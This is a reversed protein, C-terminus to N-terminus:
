PIVEETTAKVHKVLKLNKKSWGKRMCHSRQRKMARLDKGHGLGYWTGGPQRGMLMYSTKSELVTVELAATLEGVVKWLRQLQAYTVIEGDMTSVRGAEIQKSSHEVAAVLKKLKKMETM